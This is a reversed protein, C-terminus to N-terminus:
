HCRCKHLGKMLMSLYISQGDAGIMKKVSHKQSELNCREKSIYCSIDNFCFSYNYHSHVVTAPPIVTSAQLAM